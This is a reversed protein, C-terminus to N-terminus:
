ATVERVAAVVRDVDADDMAPFLPLTVARAYYDEAAPFSGPAFGRQKRYWPHLHVPLYHVHAGIGRERLAEIVGRRRAPDVRVVYLHWASRATSRRALPRVRPDDAFAADYRAALARRRAVFAGLRRLQSLGLACHIDSARYNLGLEHMERHWPGPDREEFADPDLTIGHSRFRLLRDRLEPDNTTVAGGEGMTVHKVAHFSFVTMASHRCAGVPVWEGAEADFYEAGLAHCADEVVRAGVEDALARLAPVDAPQGTMHVPAIVRTAPGASRAAAEPDLLATDREVDAFEVGAGVHLAANATAAFTIPTTLCTAGAGLGAAHYAAHLAATGNCTSVAFRAGVREALAQEFAETAAGQTLRESRLVEVVARVDDEDVDQRAYPLFPADGSV